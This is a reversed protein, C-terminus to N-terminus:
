AKGSTAYVLETRPRRWVLITPSSDGHHAQLVLKQLEKPIVLRGYAGHLRRKHPEKLILIGHQLDYQDVNKRIRKLEDEPAAEPLTGDSLFQITPALQVDERQQRRVDEPSITTIKDVTFAAM